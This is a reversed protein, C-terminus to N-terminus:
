HLSGQRRRSVLARAEAEWVRRRLDLLESLSQAMEQVKLLAEESFNQSCTSM